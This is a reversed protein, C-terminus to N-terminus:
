LSPHRNEQPAAVRKINSSTTGEHNNNGKRIREASNLVDRVLEQVQDEDM